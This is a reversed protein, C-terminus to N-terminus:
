RTAGGPASGGRVRRAYGEPPLFALWLGIANLSGFVGTAIMTLPDQLVNIGRLIGLANFSNIVVSSLGVGGWLLMRNAVLPDALGLPVRLRLRTWYRLSEAATWAFGISSIATSSLTWFLGALGVASPDRMYSWASWTMGVWHVLLAAAVIAVAGRLWRSDPRFVCGTFLFIALVGVDLAGVGLAIAAVRASGSPLAETIMLIPYGTACIGFLCVCIWLEAKGGTQRALRLVKWGVLTGVGCFAVLAAFSFMALM